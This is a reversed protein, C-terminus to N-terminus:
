KKNTVSSKIKKCADMVFRIPYLDGSGYTLADKFPQEIAWSINQGFAYSVCGEDNEVHQIALDPNKVEEEDTWDVYPLMKILFEKTKAYFTENLKECRSGVELTDYNFRLIYNKMIDINSKNWGLDSASSEDKFDLVLKVLNVYKKPVWFYDNDSTDEDGLVDGCINSAYKKDIQDIIEVSPGKGEAVDKPNCTLLRNRLRDIEGFEKILATNLEVEAKLSAPNRIMEASQLISNFEDDPLKKLQDFFKSIDDRKVNNKFEAISDEESAKPHNKRWDDWKAWGYLLAIAIAGVIEWLEQAPKLEKLSFKM